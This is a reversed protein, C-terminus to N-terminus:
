VELEGREVDGRLRGDAHIRTITSLIRYDVPVAVSLRLTVGNNSLKLKPFGYLTDMFYLDKCRPFIQIEHIELQAFECEECTAFRSLYVALPRYRGSTTVPQSPELAGFYDCVQSTTM